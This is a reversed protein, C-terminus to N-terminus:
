SIITKLLNTLVVAIVIAGLLRRIIASGQLLEQLAWILLSIVAIVKFINSIQSEIVIRSLFTSLVWAILALNPFQAIAIQGNKDRVITNIFKKLQSWNKM